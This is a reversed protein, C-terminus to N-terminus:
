KSDNAVTNVPVVRQASATAALGACTRGFSNGVQIMAGNDNFNGIGPIRHFSTFGCSATGDGGPGPTGSLSWLAFGQAECTGHFETKRVFLGYFVNNQIQGWYVSDAATGTIESVDLTSFRGRNGVNVLGAIVAGSNKFDFCEQPFGTPDYWVYSRPAPQAAFAPAIVLLAVSFLSLTAVLSTKKM